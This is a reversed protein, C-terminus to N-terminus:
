GEWCKMPMLPTFEQKQRSTKFDMRVDKKVCHKVGKRIEMCHKCSECNKM